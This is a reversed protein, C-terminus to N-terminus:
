ASQSAGVLDLIFRMALQEVHHDHEVGISARESRAVVRGHRPRGASNPSHGYRPPDDIRRENDLLAGPGGPYRFAFGPPAVSRRNEHPLLLMESEILGVRPAIRRRYRDASRRRSRADDSRAQVWRGLWTFGVERIRLDTGRDGLRLNTLKFGLQLAGALPPLRGQDGDNHDGQQGDQHEADNREVRDVVLRQRREPARLQRESHPM